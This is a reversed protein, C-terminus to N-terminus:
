TCTIMKIIDKKILNFCDDLKENCYVTQIHNAELKESSFDTNDALFRRRLEDYNPSQQQKERAFARELRLADAVAIYIPVVREKGFYVKLNYYAELTAIVIYNGCSLDIKGDDITCYYWIGNVTHYERKEIIKGSQAYQQLATEDIFHYEVGETENNRKPRTTYPIVPILDLDKDEKLFKFMTDKGSSSKGMICFIKGM